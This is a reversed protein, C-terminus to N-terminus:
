RRRLRLRRKGPKGASVPVTITKVPANCPLADNITRVIKWGEAGLRLVDVSRLREVHATFGGFNTVGTWQSVVIALDSGADVSEIDYTWSPRPEERRFDCDFWATLSDFTQEPQCTKSYRIERDFVSMTKKSDGSTYGAIWTDYLQKVDPTKPGNNM